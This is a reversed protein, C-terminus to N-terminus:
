RRRLIAATPDNYLSEWGADQMACALRSDAPLIAWSVDYSELLDQWGAGASIIVDYERTLKEGYFDTQGDIFVRYEPWHSHLLYGGWTFHNFVNGQQPNAQLWESAEVPFIAPDFHNGQRSLDLPVQQLYLLM